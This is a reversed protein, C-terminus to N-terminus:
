IIFCSKRIQLGGDEAHPSFLHHELLVTKHSKLSSSLRESQKTIDTVRKSSSVASSHLSLQDLSSCPFAAHTGPATAASHVTPPCWFHYCKLNLEKQFLELFKLDLAFFFPCVPHRAGIELSLLSIIEM